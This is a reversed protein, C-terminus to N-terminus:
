IKDAHKRWIGDERGVVRHQWAPGAVPSGAYALDWQEHACVPCFPEGFARAVIASVSM